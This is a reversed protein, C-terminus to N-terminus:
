PTKSSEKFDRHPNEQTEPKLFPDTLLAALWLLLFGGESTQKGEERLGGREKGLREHRFKSRLLQRLPLSPSGMELAEASQVMVLFRSSALFRQLRRNQGRLIVACQQISRPVNSRRGTALALPWNKAIHLSTRTKNGLQFSGDLRELDWLMRSTHYGGSMM